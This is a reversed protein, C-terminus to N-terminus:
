PNPVFKAHSDSYLVVRGGAAVFFGLETEAPSLIDGANGGRYTYNFDRMMDKDKLYPMLEKEWDSIGPLNDDHDSALVMLATGIQKARNVLKALAEAESLKKALAFDVPQIERLLLCGADQYIVFDNAPSVEINGVDPGVRTKWPIERKYDHRENVLGIMAFGGGSDVSFQRLKEERFIIRLEENEKLPSQTIAGTTRNLTMKLRVPPNAHHVRAHFYLNTDDGAYPFSVVINPGFDVEKTKGDLSLFTVKESQHGIMITRSFPKDGAYMVYGDGLEINTMNGTALNLIEAHGQGTWTSIVLHEDDTMATVSTTEPQVRLKRAVKTRRDFCYWDKSEKPKLEVSTVTRRQFLILRGSFSISVNSVVGSSVTEAPMLAFAQSDSGFVDQAQVIASLLGALVFTVVKM